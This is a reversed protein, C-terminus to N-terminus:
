VEEGAGGEKNSVAFGAGARWFWEAWVRERGDLAFGGRALADGFGEPEGEPVVCDIGGDCGTAVMGYMCEVARVVEDVEPVRAAAREAYPREAHEDCASFRVEVHVGGGVDVGFTAGGYLPELDTNVLECGDLPHLFVAKLKRVKKMTDCM